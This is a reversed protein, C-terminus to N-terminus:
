AAVRVEVARDDASGSVRTLQPQAGPARADKGARHSQAGAGPHGARHEPDGGGRPHDGQRQRRRQLAAARDTRPDPLVRQTGGHRLPRLARRGPQAPGAPRPLGPLIVAGARRVRVADARLGLLGGTPTIVFGGLSREVDLFYLLGATLILAIVCTAIVRRPGVRDDFWGGIFAGLAAAVNGAIGFLLIDSTTFGFVTVGLIAGYTFVASLGDRYIASSVLFWFTNRDERWLGLILGLLRRYSELISVREQVVEQDATKLPTLLLPLSFILFWAAAVLAVARVNVMEDEGLGFLHPPEGAVLGFYVIALIVIGGLYGSGWGVGSVRGMRPSDAIDTIMSNYNLNAFEDFLTMTAMLTVGLVLYAQDPKVFFCAAVLAVVILTNLALWRRRQGGNDARQGIVPATLAIILGAITNATTLYQTGQGGPGVADAIYTGFVFTVMVASVTANGWSWLSWVAILRKKLPELVAAAAPETTSM